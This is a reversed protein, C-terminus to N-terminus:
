LTWLWLRAYVNPGSGHVVEMKPGTTECRTLHTGLPVGCPALSPGNFWM